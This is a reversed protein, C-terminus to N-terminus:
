GLILMVGCPVPQNYGTSCIVRVLRLSVDLQVSSTQITAAGFKPANSLVYRETVWASATMVGSPISKITITASGNQVPPDFPIFQFYPGTLKTSSPFEVTIDPFDPM